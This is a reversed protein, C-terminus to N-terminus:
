TIKNQRQESTMHDQESIMHDQESNLHDQKSSVHEQESIVHDLIESSQHLDPSALTTAILIPDQQKNTVEVM